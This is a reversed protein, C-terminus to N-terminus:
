ELLRVISPAVRRAGYVSPHNDDFYLAEHDRIAFCVSSDCFDSAIDFLKVDPHLGGMSAYVSDNIELWGSLRRSSINSKETSFSEKMYLSIDRELTPAQVVVIVNKGNELLHNALDVISIAVDSSSIEARFTLIVNRINPSEKIHDLRTKYFESCYIETERRFGAQCGGITYQVLSRSYIRLEEAIAFALEVGHSNGYIAVDANGDFYECSDLVGFSSNRGFHCRDRMPSPIATAYLQRETENLRWDFGKGLHGAIGIAAIVGGVACSAAFVGRQTSLVPDSRRRFPQEVWHWTAWALLLSAVALLAMLRFSPETFSRLHAFAFLPQHWLYASYSILGIGVFPRLLLFRGVFNDNSSFLIILATGVVPFLTYTSPFPTNSDFYFISFVIFSLGTVSLFNNSRQTKYATIFACISGALIEWARTPALYFTATPMARSGFDALLLSLIAAAAVMCFVRLRGLRWFAMMFIPFILYYQEEVALSWTHLLPKFDSVTSFYNEERWFLINSSFLVVAVVSRMFEEMQAPLMWFYSFPLCLLVIFFLAPLIRRARREYFDALSFNNGEIDKIIISTILYGSIVFFVDVGIYGGSFVSFGAHFLIVPLVAVARLGDIERRYRM